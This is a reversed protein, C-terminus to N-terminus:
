NISYFIGPTILLYGGVGQKRKVKNFVWYLVQVTDDLPTAIDNRCHYNYTGQYRRNCSLWVSRKGVNLTRAIYTDNRLTLIHEYYADNSLAKSHM